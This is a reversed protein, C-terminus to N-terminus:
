INWEWSNWTDTIFAAPKYNKVDTNMATYSNEWYFFVAPVLEHIREQQRQYLAKRKAQDFTQAAALTTENVIPDNLWATNAGNPPIFAGVWNGSNDPDPGNTDVTWDMDFKGTYLPGTQSFLLSVPYNRIEIDFGLSKLEGQIVVEAQQNEQKNTGTSITLSLPQGNKQLIGNPGPKWGAAALLRKADAVDYKYRGITPAAWSNPFIDSVALKNYGHYVRDNIGKWDVGEAVALRVRQDHLAPRSTNFMLRRWNAILKQEVRIGSIQPLSAISNEDVGSYVDVEHTRLQNFLTNVDQIVKWVVKKLKPAGRFYYPNPAFELTSGHYWATLVYPGSSLPKNNFEARNIDPLNALLHAPLPPYGSGGMALVGLFAAMPRKLHIVITYDDPARASAIDDWGYKTKTNNRPNNVASYTFMWDRATLPVGDSWKVNKRLHLTITLGDASIGGNKLTPVQTVLDPIYNGNDDYRM